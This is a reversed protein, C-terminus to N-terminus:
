GDPRGREREVWAAVQARTRVGLKGRINEAHREVTRASLVLRAAIEQNSMGAAILEAVERERASLPGPAASTHARGGDEREGVDPALAEALAAEPALAGGAEWAARDAPARPAACWRERSRREETSAKLGFAVRLSDAAGCLRFARAADGTAAAVAAIQDLGGPVGALHGLDRRLSLSRAAHRRAAARDGRELAVWGLAALADAEGSRDGVRRLADLAATYHEAAAALDGEARAADGLNVRSWAVGPRDRLRERVALCAAFARRAAAFDGVRAATLGLGSLIQTEYWLDGLERVLALAREHDRRAADLDGATRELTARVHLGRFAQERPDGAWPLTLQEDVLARARRHEGHNFLVVALVILASGLAAPEGVVRGLRLAAEALPLAARHDGQLFPLIAATYLARVAASTRPLRDVAGAEDLGLVRACWRQGETAYGRMGWFRWLAGVIRIATDREAPRDACYALAARVNDHEAELRDFWAVQDPGRTGPEAAEVCDCYYAAHRRRVTETEGAEALRALAYARVTDQLAYRTRNGESRVAVLSRAVLGAVLDLVAAREVGDGACVEEAAELLWGGAFVGLRRFLRREDPELLDFSWDLAARLTRHRVPATRPGSTLLAFRDALRAAIEAPSMAATRAAALEIALPLGDLRRVVEAVAGATQADLAFEPRVARAREVFLRVAAHAGPDPDDVAPTGLPPLRWPLEGVVGLAERSTALVRMCPCLRLLTEVLEACAGVLHECNDLVVLLQRPRLPEAITALLPQRPQEPLGLAAAVTKPVLAPDALPALEALWVGDPFAGLAGRAAELALRTKGVGGPGTLTLLRAGGLLDRVRAIEPERGVFSTLSVPLNHRGARTAGEM